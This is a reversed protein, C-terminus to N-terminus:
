SDVIFFDLQTDNQFISDMYDSTFCTCTSGEEYCPLDIIANYLDENIETRMEIIYFNEFLGWEQTLDDIDINSKEHLNIKDDQLPSPPPSSGSESFISFFVMFVNICSDEHIM